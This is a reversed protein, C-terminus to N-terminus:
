VPLGPTDPAFDHTFDESPGEDGDNNTVKHATPENMRLPNGDSDVAIQREHDYRWDLAPKGSRSMTLMGRLGWPRVAAPSVADTNDPTRMPRALPFQGSDSVVPEESFRTLMSTM